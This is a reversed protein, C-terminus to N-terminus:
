RTFKDAARATAASKCVMGLPLSLIWLRMTTFVVMLVLVLVLLPLQSLAARRPTSFSRLAEVHALNVSAIHGLLILAVQTHWITDVEVVFPEIVLGSTGLLNWGWGFPDSVLRVIQPGQALLLTYYHTVHHVFAIPVLSAAFRLALSRASQAAGTIRHAVWVAGFLAAFYLFPSVVLACWQWM